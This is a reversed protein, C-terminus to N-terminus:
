LGIKLIHSISKVYNISYIVLTKRLYDLRSISIAQDYIM